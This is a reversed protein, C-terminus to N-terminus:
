ASYRELNSRVSPETKKSPSENLARGKIPIVKWKITTLHMGRFPEASMLTAPPEDLRTLSTGGIPNITKAVLSAGFFSSETKSPKRPGTALNRHRM